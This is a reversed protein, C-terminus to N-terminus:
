NEPTFGMNIIVDSTIQTVDGYTYTTNGLFERKLKTATTRTTTYQEELFGSGFQQDAAAQNGLQDAVVKVMGQTGRKIMTNMALMALVVAGIVIVYELFIQAKRDGDCHQRLM